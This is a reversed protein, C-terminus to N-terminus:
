VYWGQIYFTGQGATATGCASVLQPGSNNVWFQIYSTGPQIMATAGVGNNPGFGISYGLPMTQFLNTTSLSPEPLSLQVPANQNVTPGVGNAWSVGISFFKINGFKFYFGTGAAFTTTGDGLTPTFNTGYNTSIVSNPVTCTSDLTKNFVTQAATGTVAYDASIPQNAPLSVTGGSPAVLTPNLFTKNQLNSTSNNTVFTDAGALNIPLTVPNSNSTFLTPNDLSGTCQSFGCSVLTKHYLNQFANVGILNDNGGMNPVTVNYGDPSVITPNTITKNLLDASNNNTVLVDNATLNTPITATHAGQKFVPSYLTKNLLNTTSAASPIVDGAVTIPAVTVVQSSSQSPDTQIIVQGASNSANQLTVSNGTLNTASVNSTILGEPLVNGGSQITNINATNRSM